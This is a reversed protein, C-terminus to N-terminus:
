HGGIEVRRREAMNMWDVTARVRAREKPDGIEPLMSGIRKRGIYVDTLDYEPDWLRVQDDTHTM